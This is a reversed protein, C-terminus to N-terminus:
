ASEENDHLYELVRKAIRHYGRYNPHFNDQWFLDVDRDDFLDITPIYTANDYKETVKKGTENWNRVIIGLEKIKPFYRGFPNYFGLLYVDTHPNLSYIKEFIKSLRDEYDVRERQFDEFTINTINEKLVQMIDNAGITILVVDAESISTAVKPDELYKLLQDSRRGRKGYNEFKVVTEDTSNLADELMGVYGGNGTEDGVGQTLSDGIAVVRAEKNSFFDITERVAGTVLDKVKGAVNDATKEEKEEVPDKKDKEPSPKEKKNEIEAKDIAKDIPSNINTIVLIIVLGILTIGISILATKRKLM